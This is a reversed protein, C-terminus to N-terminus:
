ENDDPIVTITIQDIGDRGTDDEAVSDKYIGPGKPDALEALVSQPIAVTLSIGTASRFTNVQIDSM